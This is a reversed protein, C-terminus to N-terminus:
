GSEGGAGEGSFEGEGDGDGDGSSAASESTLWAPTPSASSLDLPSPILEPLFAPIATPTIALTHTTPNPAITYLFRRCFMCLDSYPYVALLSSRYLSRNSDLVIKANM